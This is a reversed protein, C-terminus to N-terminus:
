ERAGRGATHTGQPRENQRPARPPGSHAHCQANTAGVSTNQNAAIGSGFSQAPRARQALANNVAEAPGILMTDDVYSLAIARM